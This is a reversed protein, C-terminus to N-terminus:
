FERNLLLLVKFIEKPLLLFMFYEKGLNEGSKKNEIDESCSGM